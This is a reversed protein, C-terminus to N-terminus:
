VAAQPINTDLLANNNLAQMNGSKQAEYNQVLLQIQPINLLAQQLEASIQPIEQVFREPNEVGKQEMYFTFIEQANLPLFQAFERCANVIMDAKNSKESM